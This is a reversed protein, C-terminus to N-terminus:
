EGLATVVSWFVEGDSMQFNIYETGLYGSKKQMSLRESLIKDGKKSKIMFKGDHILHAVLPNLDLLFYYDENKFNINGFTKRRYADDYDYWWDTVVYKRKKASFLKGLETYKEYSHKKRLEIYERVDAQRLYLIAHKKNIILISDSITDIVIPHLEKYQIKDYEMQAYSSISFIFILIFLFINKM